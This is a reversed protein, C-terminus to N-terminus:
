PLSKQYNHSRKLTALELQITMMEVHRSASVSEPLQDLWWTIVVPLPLGTMISLRKARRHVRRLTLMSLNSISINISADPM